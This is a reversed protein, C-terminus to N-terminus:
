RWMGASWINSAEEGNSIKDSVKKTKKENSIEGSIELLENADDKGNMKWSREVKKGKQMKERETKKISRLM